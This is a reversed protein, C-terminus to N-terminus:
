NRTSFCYCSKLLSKALRFTGWLFLAKPLNKLRKLWMTLLFRSLPSEKISSSIKLSPMNTTLSKVGKIKKLKSLWLNDRLRAPLSTPSEKTETNSSSRKTIESLAEQQTTNSSLSSKLDSTISSQKKFIKNM